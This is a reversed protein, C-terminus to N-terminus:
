SSSQRTKDAVIDNCQSSMAQLLSMQLKVTLILSVDKKRIKTKSELIIFKQQYEMNKARRMKTANDIM